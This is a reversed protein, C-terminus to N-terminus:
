GARARGRRSSGSRGARRSRRRRAPAGSRRKAETAEAIVGSALLPHGFRVDGNAFELVQAAVAPALTEEAIGVAEVEGSGPSGRGRRPAAGGTDGRPTRPASRELTRSRRPCRFRSPPTLTAPSRTSRGHSSWPTSRIAVRCRTCRADDAASIDAWGRRPGPEPNCGPQAPRRAGAVEGPLARELAALHDGRRALLM